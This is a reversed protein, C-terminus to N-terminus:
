AAAEGVLDGLAVIVASAGPPMVEIPHRRAALEAARILDSVDWTAAQPGVDVDDLDGDARVPLLALASSAVIQAGVALSHVGPDVGSCSLARDAAATLLAAVQMWTRTPDHDTLDTLDTM